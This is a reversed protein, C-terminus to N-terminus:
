PATAPARRRNIPAALWEDVARVRDALRVRAFDARAHEALTMARSSRSGAADALARALSFRIDAIELPEAASATQLSLALELDEVAQVADGMALAVQGRGKLPLALDPHDPPLTRAYIELARAFSERAQVHRELAAQSEGLNSHLRAVREHDPGLTARAIDLAERYAEISGPIDDVFFRLVGRAEHLEALKEHDPGLEQVYGAFAADVLDLATAFAGEAMRAKARAYRVRAVMYSDDGFAARDITEARDLHADVVALDGTDLALAALDFEFAGVLPAGPGWRREARARGEDLLQQAEDYRGLQGLTAAIFWSEREAMGENAMEQALSQAERFGALAEERKGDQLLLAARAHLLRARLPERPRALRRLATEAEDVLFREPQPGSWRGAAAVAADVRLEAALADLQRAEAERALEVLRPVAPFIRGRAVDLQAPLAQLEIRLPAHAFADPAEAEVAAVIAAAREPAGADALARARSLDDYAALVAERAAGAEPLPEAEALGPADSCTSLEPLRDLLAPAHVPLDLTADDSSWSDLTVQLSRRRRELCANRLALMSEDESGHVRTALCAARRAEHWSTTWADLGQEVTALTTSTYAPGRAAFRDRLASRRTEDWTGDLARAEIACPSAVPDIADRLLGAGVAAGGVLAAVGWWRMRSRPPATAADLAALLEALSPFRDEPREALGRQLVAQVSKRVRAGELVEHPMTGHLSEWISACLAHQDAAAGIAGGQRQEPAAYRYTGVFRGGTQATDTQGHVLGFDILRARGDDGILVNSPKVDRHVLGLRHAALLGHGVASWHRLIEAGDPRPDRGLWQQLTTGEVLEMAIWVRHGALGSEFVTVVHPHTLRALSRAEALARARLADGVGETDVVKIAVARELQPDWARYVVGMGGAGIRDRLEFRGCRPPALEVEFMRAMLRQRVIRGDISDPGIREVAADVADDGSQSERGESVSQPTHRAPHQRALARHM